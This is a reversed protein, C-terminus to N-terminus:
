TTYTFNEPDIYWADRFTRDSPILSSEIICYQTNLPLIEKALKEYEIEPIEPNIHLIKIGDNHKSIIVKNM